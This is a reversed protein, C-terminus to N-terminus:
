SFCSFFIQGQLFAAEKDPRPDWAAAQYLLLQAGQTTHFGYSRLLVGGVATLLRELVEGRGGEFTQIVKYERQVRKTSDKYVVREGRENGGTGELVL